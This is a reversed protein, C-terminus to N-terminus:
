EILNISRLRVKVDQRTMLLLECVEVEKLASPNITKRRFILSLLIEEYKCKVLLKIAITNM